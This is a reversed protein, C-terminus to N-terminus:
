KLSSVDILASYYKIVGLRKKGKRVKETLNNQANNKFQVKEKTSISTQTTNMKKLKLQKISKELKQETNTKMNLVFRPQFCHRMLLYKYRNKSQTCRQKNNGTKM